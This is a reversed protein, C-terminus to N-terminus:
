DKKKLYKIMHKTSSSFGQNEWFNLAGENKLSVQLEIHDAGQEEFWQQAKEFLLKGIGKGRFAEDVVTDAIYGRRNYIMAKQTIRYSTAIYGVTKEEIECIFFRFESGEIRAKLDEEIQKRAGEKAQFVLHHEAHHNMLEYWLEIMQPVDEITAERIKMM